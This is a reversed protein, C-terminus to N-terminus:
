TRIVDRPVDRFDDVHLIHQKKEAAAAKDDDEDDLLSLSLSLLMVQCYVARDLVCVSLGGIAQWIFCGSTHKLTEIIRM